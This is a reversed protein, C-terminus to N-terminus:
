ILHAFDFHQTTVIQAKELDKYRDKQSITDPLYVKHRTRQVFIDFTELYREITPYIDSHDLELSTIISYDTDLYLLHRNYEDAEISFLYKKLLHTSVPAKPNIISDLILKVEAKLNPNIRM